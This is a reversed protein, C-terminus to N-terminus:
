IIAFADGGLDPLKANPALAAAHPADAVVIAADALAGGHQINLNAGSIQKLYKALEEAALTESDSPQAPTVITYGSKGDRTLSLDAAFALSPVLSVFLAISRM